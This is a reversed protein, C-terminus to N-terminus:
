LAKGHIPLPDLMQLRRTDVQEVTQGCEFNPVPVHDHVQLSTELDRAISIARQRRSNEERGGAPKVFGFGYEGPQAGHVGVVLRPPSNLSGGPATSIG